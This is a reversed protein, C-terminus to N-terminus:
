PAFSCCPRWRIQIDTPFAIQEDNRKGILSPHPRNQEFPFFEYPCPLTIDPGFQRVVGIDPGNNCVAEFGNPPIVDSASVYTSRSSNRCALRRSFLVKAKVMKFSRLGDIRLRSPFWITECSSAKPNTPARNDDIIQDDIVVLNGNQFEWAKQYIVNRDTRFRADFLENEHETRILPFTNATTQEVFDFDADFPFRFNFSFAILHLFVATPPPDDCCGLMTNGNTQVCSM